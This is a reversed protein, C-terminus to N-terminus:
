PSACPNILHSPPALAPTSPSPSICHLMGIGSRWALWWPCGLLLIALIEPVCRAPPPAPACVMCGHKRRPSRGLRSLPGRPKRPPVQGTPPNDRGGPRPSRPSSRCSLLAHRRGRSATRSCRRTQAAPSPGRERRRRLPPARPHTRSRGAACPFPDPQTLPPANRLSTLGPFLVQPERIM